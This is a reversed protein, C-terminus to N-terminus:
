NTQLLSNSRGTRASAWDLLRDNGGGTALAFGARAQDHSLLRKTATAPAARRLLRDHRANAALALGARAQDHSLLANLDSALTLNFLRCPRLVFFSVPPSM